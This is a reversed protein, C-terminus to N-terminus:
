AFAAAQLALDIKGARWLADSLIDMAILRDGRERPYDVLCPFYPGYGDVFRRWTSESKGLREAVLKPGVRFRPFPSEDFDFGEPSFHALASINQRGSRVRGAFKFRFWRGWLPSVSILPPQNAVRLLSTLAVVETLFTAKGRARLTRGAIEYVKIFVRKPNGAGIVLPDSPEEVRLIKGAYTISENYKVIKAVRDDNSLSGQTRTHVAV